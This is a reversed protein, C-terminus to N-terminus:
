SVRGGVIAGTVTGVSAGSVDGGTSTVGVGVEAGM